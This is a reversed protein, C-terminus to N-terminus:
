IFNSTQAFTWIPAEAFDADTGGSEGGDANAGIGADADVDPAADVDVDADADLAATVAAVSTDLAGAFEGAVSGLAMGATRSGHGHMGVVSCVAVSQGISEYGGVYRM